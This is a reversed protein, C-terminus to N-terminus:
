KCTSAAEINKTVLGSLNSTTTVSLKNPSMIVSMAAAIQPPIPRAALPFM